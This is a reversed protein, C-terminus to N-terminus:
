IQLFTDFTDSIKKFFHTYPYNKTLIRLLMCLSDHFTGGLGFPAEYGPHWPVVNQTVLGLLIKPEFIFRNM